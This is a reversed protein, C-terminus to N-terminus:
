SKKAAMMPLAPGSTFARAARTPQRREGLRGAHSRAFPRETRLVRGGGEVSVIRHTEAAEATGVQVTAGVWTSGGTPPPMGPDGLELAMSGETATFELNAVWDPQRGRLFWQTEHPAAFEHPDTTPLSAALEAVLEASRGRTFWDNEDFTSGARAPGPAHSRPTPAGRPTGSPTVRLGQIVALQEFAEEADHEQRPALRMPRETQRQPPAM